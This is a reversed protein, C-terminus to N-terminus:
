VDRVLFVAEPMRFKMGYYFGAASFCSAVVINRGNRARTRQVLEHGSNRGPRIRARRVEDERRVRVGLQEM